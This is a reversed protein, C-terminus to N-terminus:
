VAKRGGGIHKCYLSGWELGEIGYDAPDIDEFAAAPSCM